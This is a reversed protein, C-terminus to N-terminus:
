ERFSPHSGTMIQRLSQPLADAEPARRHRTKEDDRAQGRHARRSGEGRAGPMGAEASLAGSYEDHWSERDELLAAEGNVTHYALTYLIPMLKEKFEAFSKAGNLADLEEYINCRTGTSAM